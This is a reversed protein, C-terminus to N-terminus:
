EEFVDDLDSFIKLWRDLDENMAEVTLSEIDDVGFLFSREEGDSTKYTMNGKDISIVRLDESLKGM